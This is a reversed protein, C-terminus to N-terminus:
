SLPLFTEVSNEGRQMLCHDNDKVSFPSILRDPDKRPSFFTITSLDSVKQSPRRHVHQGGLLRLFRDGLNLMDELCPLRHADLKKNGEWSPTEPMIYAKGRYHTGGPLHGRYDRKDSVDGLVLPCILLKLAIIEGVKTLIYDKDEDQVLISGKELERLAHIATTSSIGIDDRLESLPKKGESLSILISSRLDSCTALRLIGRVMALDKIEEKKTRVKMSM